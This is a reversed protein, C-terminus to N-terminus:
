QLGGAHGFLPGLDDDDPSAGAPQGGRGGKALLAEGGQDELAGVHDARAPAAVVVAEV